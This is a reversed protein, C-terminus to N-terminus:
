ILNVKLIKSKGIVKSRVIKVKIRVKKSPIPVHSSFIIEPKITMPAIAEKIVPSVDKPTIANIIAKRSLGYPSGNIASFNTNPSPLIVPANFLM